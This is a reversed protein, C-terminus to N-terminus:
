RSLACSQVHQHVSHDVVVLLPGLAHHDAIGRIHLLLNMLHLLGQPGGVPLHVVHAPVGDLEQLVVLHHHHIMGQFVQVRQNGLAVLLLNDIFLIVVYLLNDPLAQEILLFFGRGRVLRVPQEGM